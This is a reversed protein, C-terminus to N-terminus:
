YDDDEREPGDLAGWEISELCLEEIEVFCDTDVYKHNIYVRNVLNDFFDTIDERNLEIKEIYFEPPEPPDGPDGNGAYWHGPSGKSYKGTVSLSLGRYIINVNEKSSM